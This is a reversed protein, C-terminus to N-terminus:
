LTEKLVSRPRLSPRAKRASTLREALAAVTPAEFVTMISLDTQLEARIRSVLRMALLSHGGLLFFDDDISVSDLGLLEAFLASLAQEGATRPARATPSCAHAPAPLRGRDLKGNVTRPLEDLLVWASPVLHEPLLGAAFGRVEAVSLDTDAVLYGVLRPDGPVDERVVVACQRVLPHRLLATRVEEPEIRFGRIKVQDDRRGLYELTGDRLQRVLDGTRYMRDCFPSAVFREATLGPQGAYGYALGAGALYLEGPAGPPVPRLRSDLVYARKSHVPRGIPVGIPFLEDGIEFATSFGMSEVPGYGNVVRIPHAARVASVHAVSAPEGGTLAWRLGTFIAPYDDWLHNFLSAATDLVTVSHRAVLEVIRAPDPRQGPQLVCCGGSLLPGFLQRAFADWSVPACQLYVEGPGFGCYHQGALSGVLARHPALVAKPVGTSGSTFIVCALDDAGVELEPSGVPFQGAAAAAEEVDIIRAVVDRLQAPHRGDSLMVETGLQGLVAALRSAPFAVDLVTYAAGAKLVALLGVVLSVGRELHVAVVTGRQVGSAILHHALQNARRNLEGYSIAQEGFLLATAQPTALSQREFLGHVTDRVPCLEVAPPSLEGPLLIDVDGTPHDPSEVLAGLFRVFRDALAQAASRDFRDAAYRLCGRIGDPFESLEVALDFKAWGTEVPLVTSALPTLDLGADASTQLVLMTQFLPHRAQSRPPNLREVLQDFPTDQNAYAALDSERVRQLLQRFTPEGTLDTRLVLTNAFLGVLDTLTDDPRGAVVGGLPVDTGAGLRSLLAALGAHLAMLLTAGCTRALERLQRSVEADLVVPVTGGRHSPATPRPRDAPLEIEAPLGALAESWYALQRGLLSDPRSAEGLLQRHWYAYDVYDVPLPPWDPASGACRSRYATGLDRLLPTESWGDTAIHHVVLLLVHHDAGIEFLYARLPRETSLDFPMSIAAQVLADLEAEVCATVPLEILPDLIRQRPTADQEDIVTRLPEHRRQVDTLADALAARGLPGRLRVALPVHYATGSDEWQQTFWLRQQGHSLVPHAPRAIRVPTARVPGRTLHPALSAPTPTQFLAAFDLEVGAKSRLRSIVSVTALSHGGLEFFDDDAGVEPLGLVEAFVRCLLEEEATAPARGTRPQLPAPLAARDLKGHATLPLADLLTVTAPVMYEPLSQACHELLEEPAPEHGAVPVVYGALALDGAPTTRVVVAAQVVESHTALAGAIEPLEIRYGRIKVQDDVRGAFDIDGDERLRGLDGTRYMREGPPGFPCAVFREATRAYRKLYGRALQPGALYLEGIQGDAVPQLQADLLYVRNNCSPKGIPALGSGDLPVCRWGTVGVAAETPGYHNYLEADLSTRFRNAVGIPLGEGESLVLRLSGRGPDVALYEDLFLPLMSAVFHIVSIRQAHAVRALYGPDRHGDPKALVLTAGQTLTWFFEVVSPDFTSPTKQLVRDGPRLRYEDQVAVLRNVIAQHSVVVGKPQGTTGSTYIVYAPQDPLLPRVREADTLDAESHGSLEIRALEAADLTLVPCANVLQSAIREEPYNLDIPLYAAGAKLIALLSVILEPSRPLAVAVIDEPGVSRAVLARALQNTRANLEGYSLSGSDSVLAEGQPTRRAQAAVLEVVTTRPVPRYTANLQDSM